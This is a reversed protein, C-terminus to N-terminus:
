MGMDKRIAVVIKCHNILDSTGTVESTYNLGYPWFHQSDAHLQDQPNGTIARLQSTANAGTFIGNSILSSWQSATGIGVTHSIEHMATIYNMYTQSGFRISGNINGDATPVSPVYSINLSKTINTYCNYYQVATDMAETILNYAAQQEATPSSARALTYTIHGTAPCTSTQGPFQTILGVYYQALLLADIIDINGSANVDALGSDFNPPNLGVYFQAVLLADIIDVSGSHNSDGLAYSQASIGPLIFLWILLLYPFKKM